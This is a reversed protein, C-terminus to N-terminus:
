HSTWTLCAHMSLWETLDSEQCGWPSCGGPEEIWPIRWVLISSHIAMGKELPDEWGLSWVWIEQMAPPNKITQAVLCIWSLSFLKQVAFSVVLMIFLCGISPLLYKFHYSQYPTLLWFIYVAWVVWCWFFLCGLYFNPLLGAYVNRWLLCVSPWCTCSFINLM